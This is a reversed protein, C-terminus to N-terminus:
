TRQPVHDVLNNAATTRTVRRLCGINYLQVEGFESLAAAYTPWNQRPVRLKTVNNAEQQCPASMPAPHCSKQFSRIRSWPFEMFSAARWGASLSLCMGPFLKCWPLIHMFTGLRWTGSTRRLDTSCGLVHAGICVDKVSGSEEQPWVPATPYQMGTVAPQDRARSSGVALNTPIDAKPSYPNLLKDILKGSM